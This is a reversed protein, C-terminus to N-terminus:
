RRVAALWPQVRHASRQGLGQLLDRRRRQDYDYENTAGTRSIPKLPRRVCTQSFPRISRFSAGSQLPRRTQHLLEDLTRGAKKLAAVTDRIDVLAPNKISNSWPGM